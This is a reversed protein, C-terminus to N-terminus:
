PEWIDGTTKHMWVMTILALLVLTSPDWGEDTAEAHLVAVRPGSNCTEIPVVGWRDNQAHLGAHNAGSYSTEIPGLGWRQNKSAFCGSYCAEIPRLGWRDNQARLVARNAGSNSTEISGQRWRHNKGWFLSKQFPIVFRWPDSVEGTTKHMFFLTILVLIVLRYPNWGEDTTKPM